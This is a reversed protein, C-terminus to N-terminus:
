GAGPWMLVAAGAITNGQRRAEVAQGLQDVAAIGAGIKTFPVEAIISARLTPKLVPYGGFADTIVAPEKDGVANLGVAQVPGEGCLKDACQRQFHGLCLKQLLVGTFEDGLMSLFRENEENSKDFRM